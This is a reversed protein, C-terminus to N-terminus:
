ATVSSSTRLMEADRSFDHTIVTLVGSGSETFILVPVRVYSLNGGTSRVGRPTCCSAFHNRHVVVLRRNVVKQIRRRRLLRRRATPADRREAARERRRDPLHDEVVADALFVECLMLVIELGPQGLQVPRPCQQEPEHLLILNRVFGERGRPLQRVRIRPLLLLD